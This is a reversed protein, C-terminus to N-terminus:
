PLELLPKNPPGGAWMCDVNPRNDRERMFECNREFQDITMNYQITQTVLILMIAVPIILLVIILIRTNM